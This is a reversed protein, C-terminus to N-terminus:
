KKGFNLAVINLFRSIAAVIKNDVDTPTLAAIKDAVVVIATSISLIEVLNNM